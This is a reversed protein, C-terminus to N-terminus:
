ARKDSIQKKLAENLRTQWGSGTSRFHEVVEVDLRISIREKTPEKQPGREGQRRLKAQLSKPLETVPKARRVDEDTWEPNDHDPTEPNRKSM